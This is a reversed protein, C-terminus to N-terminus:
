SAFCVSGKKKDTKPTAKSDVGDDGCPDGGLIFGLFAISCYAVFLVRQRMRRQRRKPTWRMTATLIAERLSVLFRM